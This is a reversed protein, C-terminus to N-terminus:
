SRPDPVPSHRGRPVCDKAVELFQRLIRATAGWIVFEGYDYFYMEIRREEQEWVEIRPVGPALLASLPVEILCAIEEACVRTPFPHDIRAVIPTVHFDSVTVTDDIAGLVHIHGEPIGVEEVTERIATRVVSEDCDESAGGPFSIQGKHHKVKDTRLTFLIHTAGDRDFLPITVGSQMLGDCSAVVRNRGALVSALKEYDIRM